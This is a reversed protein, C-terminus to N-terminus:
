RLLLNPSNKFSNSKDSPWEEPIGVIYSSSSFFPEGRASNKVSSSLRAILILIGIWRANKSSFSISFSLKNCFSVLKSVLKFCTKFGFSKSFNTSTMLTNSTFLSIETWSTISIVWFDRVVAHRYIFINTSKPTRSFSPFVFLIIYRILYIKTYSHFLVYLIQSLM